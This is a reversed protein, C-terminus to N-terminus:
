RLLADLTGTAVSHYNSRAQQYIKQARERGGPVGLLAKYLPVIFKRRGVTHLFRDLADDAAGYGAQITHPFWATLIEANGSATFRFAADLGALQAASATPPLGHLFHVWEHSSWDRAAETLAAPETGAALRALAAEVEAFRTSRSAPANDPLGPGDVWEALRLKEELGPTADLLESRLYAIFTTTDM